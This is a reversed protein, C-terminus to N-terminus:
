HIKSGLDIGKEPILLVCNEGSEDEAAMIMGQSEEGMMARPELNFLFVFNKGDLDSAAYWKRIGTFVIREGLPGFDVKLRLLKRSEPVEIAEVVKGVRMDIKTFDDITITDAM